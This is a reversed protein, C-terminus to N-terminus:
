QLLESLMRNNFLKSREFAEMRISELLERCAQVPLGAWVSEICQTTVLPDEWDFLQNWQMFTLLANETQSESLDSIKSLISLNELYESVSRSDITFGRNAYFADGSTLVNKGLAAAELGITGQVTIIVDAFKLVEYTNCGLPLMTTNTAASGLTLSEIEQVQSKSSSPHPKIILHCENNSEFQLVTERLWVFYDQYVMSSSTHPSDDFIHAFLVVLTKGANSKSLSKLIVSNSDSKVYAKLADIQKIEGSFRYQLMKKASRILENRNEVSISEAVELQLQIGTHYNLDRNNTAPPYVSTIVDTTEIVAMGRSNAIRALVGYELYCLHTTVLIEANLKSLINSYLFFFQLARKIELRLSVDRLQFTVLEHRKLYDDYILDGIRVDRFELKLLGEIDVTRRAMRISLITSKLFYRIQLLYNSTYLRTINRLSIRDLLSITRPYTSKGFPLLLNVNNLNGRAARLAIELSRLTYNCGYEFLHGLVVVKRSRGPQSSNWDVRAILFDALLEFERELRFGPQPWRDLLDMKVRHKISNSRIM